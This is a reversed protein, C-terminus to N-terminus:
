IAGFQRQVKALPWDCSAITINLKEQFKEFKCIYKIWYMKFAVFGLDLLSFHKFALLNVTTILSDGLSILENM